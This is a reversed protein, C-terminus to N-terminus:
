FEVIKFYNHFYDSNCYLTDKGQNYLVIYTKECERIAYSPSYYYQYITGVSIGEVSTDKMCTCKNLGVEVM